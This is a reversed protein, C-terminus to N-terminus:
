FPNTELREGCVVCENTATRKGHVGLLCQDAASPRGISAAASPTINPTDPEDTWRQDNLWGQAWKPTRGDFTKGASIPGLERKYAEVGAMITDFDAGAQLAKTLAKRAPEKGKKLPWAQWFTEFQENIRKRLVSENSLTEKTPRTPDPRTPDPNRVSESGNPVTRGFVEGNEADNQPVKTKRRARMERMRARSAAREAEVDAKSPQYERWSCFTYAGQVRDWLGANVLCEIVAPTAGWAKLMYDPVNGDTLQNAAWSGAVVWLGAAAFRHRSPISQLKHSAHFGDDVKFWAM